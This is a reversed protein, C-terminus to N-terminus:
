ASRAWCRARAGAAAPLAGEARRQGFAMLISCVPCNNVSVVTSTAGDGAAIEELSWRLTLYDLGAGGWDAPVAVGYCGLAALGGLPEAPLHTRDWQAAHPAIEGRVFARVADRIMRQDDTLLMEFGTLPATAGHGRDRDEDQPRGARRGDGDGGAPGPPFIRRLDAGAGRVARTGLLYRVRVVDDLTCGAEALAREINRFCQHVQALPDEDIRMRAYDFGTTGSVFVDDGDVVARSYGALAEFTSGSSILRREPM